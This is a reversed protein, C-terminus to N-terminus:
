FAFALIIAISAVASAMFSSVAGTEVANFSDYTPLEELYFSYTDETLSTFETASDDAYVRSGVTVDFTRGYDSAVRGIKPISLYFYCTLQATDIDVVADPQDGYAYGATWNFDTLTEEWDDAQSTWTEGIVAANANKLVDIESPEHTFYQIVDSDTEGKIIKCGISWGDEEDTQDSPIVSAYQYVIAGDAVFYDHVEISLYWSWFDDAVM